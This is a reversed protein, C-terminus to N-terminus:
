PKPQMSFLRIVLSNLFEPELTLLGKRYTTNDRNSITVVHTEKIKEMDDIWLPFSHPSNKIRIKPNFEVKRKNLANFYEIAKQQQDTM